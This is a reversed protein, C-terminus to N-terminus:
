EEGEEFEGERIAEQVRVYAWAEETEGSDRAEALAEDLWEILKKESIM